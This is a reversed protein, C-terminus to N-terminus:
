LAENRKQDEAAEPQHLDNAEADAVGDHVQSDRNRHGGEGEGELAVEIILQLVRGEVDDRNWNRADQERNAELLEELHVELIILAENHEIRVVRAELPAEADEAGDDGEEEDNRADKCEVEKLLLVRILFLITTNDVPGEKGRKDVETHDHWLGPAEKEVQHEVLEACLHDLLLHHCASSVDAEEAILVLRTGVGVLIM